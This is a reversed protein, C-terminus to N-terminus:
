FRFSDASIGAEVSVSLNITIKMKGNASRADAVAASLFKPWGCQSGSQSLINDTLVKTRYCCDISIRTVNVPYVKGGDVQVGLALKKDSLKAYGRFV